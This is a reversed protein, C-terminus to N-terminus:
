EKKTMKKISKKIQYREEMVVLKDQLTKGVSERALEKEKEAARKIEKNNEESEPNVENGEEVVASKDLTSKSASSGAAAPTSGSTPKASGDCIYKQM